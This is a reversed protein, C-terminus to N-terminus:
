LLFWKKNKALEQKMINTARGTDHLIAEGKVCVQGKQSEIVSELTITKNGENETNEKRKTKIILFQNAFSPYKYSLSLNEVKFDDKMNSTTFNSLSANRKFTENLLTALIGGHVIFPYGCLRYGTHVITVGEGTGPNYFIVPRICIGGPQALTKTPLSPKSYEKQKRTKTIIDQNDLVNRDLNEWSELKIWNDNKRPHALREYIPLHKLEYELRLPMLEDVNELDTFSAYYDFITENYALFAGIMFFVGTTKWRIFPKNRKPLYDFPSDFESRTAYNRLCTYKLQSKRISRLLNQRTFLVAKM